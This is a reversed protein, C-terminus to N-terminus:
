NDITGTKNIKKHQGTRKNSENIHRSPLNLIRLNPFFKLMSYDFPASASYPTTAINLSTTSDLRVYLSGGDRVLETIHPTTKTALKSSNIGAEFHIEQLSLEDLKQLSDFTLGSSNIDLRYAQLKPLIEGVSKDDFPEPDIKADIGAPLSKAESLDNVKLHETHLGDLAALESKDLFCECSGVKQNSRKLFRLAKADYPFDSHIQFKFESFRQAVDCNVRTQNVAIAKLNPLDKLGEVIANTVQTGDLSLHELQTLETLDGLQSDEIDKGSIYLVKLKPLKKLASLSKFDGDNISLRELSRFRTVQHVGADSAFHLTLRKPSFNPITALIDIDSEKIPFSFKLLKLQPLGAFHKLCRRTIRTKTSDWSGEPLSVDIARLRQKDRFVQLGRDTISTSWLSVRELNHCDALHELGADTIKSNGALYLRSLYPLEPLLKLDDDSFGSHQANVTTAHYLNAPPIFWSLLWSYATNPLKQKEIKVNSIGSLATVAKAQDSLRQIEKKPYFAFALSVILMLLLITRIRFRFLKKIQWGM